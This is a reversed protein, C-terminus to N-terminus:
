RASANTTFSSSLNGEARRLRRINWTCYILEDVYQCALATAPRHDQYFRAILQEYEAANEWPLVESAAYLGTKLANMSSAAKGEPSTPGTSKQANRRNAEIQKKTAM